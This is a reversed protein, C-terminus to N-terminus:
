ESDLRVLQRFVEMDTNKLEESYELLLSALDPESVLIGTENRWASYIELMDKKLIDPDSLIFENFSKITENIDLSVM